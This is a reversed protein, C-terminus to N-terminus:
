PAGQDSRGDKATAKLGEVLEVQAERGYLRGVDQVYRKRDEKRLLSVAFRLRDAPSDFDYVPMM